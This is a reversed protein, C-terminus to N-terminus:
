PLTLPCPNPSQTAESAQAKRQLREELYEEKTAKLKKKLKKEREQSRELDFRLEAMELRLKECCNCPGCSGKSIGGHDSEDQAAVSDSAVAEECSANM